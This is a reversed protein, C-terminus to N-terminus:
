SSFRSRTSSEENPVYSFTESSGSVTLYVTASSVLHDSPVANSAVSMRSWHTAVEALYLLTSASYSSSPLTEM